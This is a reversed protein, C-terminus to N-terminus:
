ANKQKYVCKEREGEKSENVRLRTIVRKRERLREKKKNNKPM